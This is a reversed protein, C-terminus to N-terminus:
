DQRRLIQVRKNFTQIDILKRLDDGNAGVRFNVSFIGSHPDSCMVRPVTTIHGPGNLM